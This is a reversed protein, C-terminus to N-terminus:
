AVSVTPSTREGSARVTRSLPHTVFGAGTRRWGAAAFAPTLESDLLNVDRVAEIRVPRGRWTALRSLEELVEAVLVESATADPDALILRRGYASVLVLPEGGRSVVASGPTRARWTGGAQPQRPLDFVTGWANAPDSGLVLRPTAAPAHDRLDDITAARAFQMGSLGLVFRGQVLEGRVTRLRLEHLVARWPVDHREARFTERCVIGWRALLMDVAVGVPLRAPTEPHRIQWRGPLGGRGSTQGPGGTLAFAARDHALSGRRRRLWERLAAFTDATVLGAWFLRMLAADIEAPDTAPVAAHDALDASFWGGGSGLVSMIADCVAERPPPSATDRARAQGRRAVVVLGRGSGSWSWDGGACVGDLSAPTYDEARAELLGNEWDGLPLPLNGLSDLVRPLADNGATTRGPAGLHHHLLFSAYHAASVPAIAARARALSVRHMRQLVDPPCWERATGMPLYHGSVLRGTKEQVRLLSVVSEVEMGYRAALDSAALPGAWDLRRLLLNERSRDADAAAVWRALEAHRVIRGEAALRAVRSATEEPPCSFRQAIEHDSMDGLDSLLALVSVDDLPRSPLRPSPLSGLEARVEDVVDADLLSRLDEVRLVEGLLERDLALYAARCEGRPADGAEAFAKLFVFDLAAAFPSARRTPVVPRAIEGAEIGRLVSRLGEVDWMEQYCERVAEQVVPFGEKRRVVSLLDAARQRQLWLPTRRAPSGKPLLLARQASERFRWAYMPADALEGILLEHVSGADVADLFSLDPDGEFEPLRIIVGDATWTVQPDLNGFRDRIPPKVAHAWAGNVAYGFLSHIVIRLDGIEDHYWEVPVVRDSPVHGLAAQQAAVLEILAHTAEDDLACHDDLLHRLGDLDDLGDAIRRALGAVRRGLHTGRGRKEGNWFALMAPEGPAPVVFVNSHDVRTPRWTSAGLVFPWRDRQMDGVFEEDLSGLRLGEVEDTGTGPDLRVTYEGRDPITGGNTTALLRAGRRAHVTGTARDVVIRPQLERYREDAYGGELMRLVNELQADSLTRFPLSRRVIRAIDCIHLDDVAAMSVIHQALVDLCLDPITVPEIDGELVAAAVGACELLDVPHRALLRGRSTETIGHGSRGVRQVAATAEQPSAYQVVCDLAGMDIGLELSSTAVLGRLRGEKLGVELDRRVEHAVSGHHAHVLEEGALENVCQVMQEVNGRSPAFVLTATHNRVIEVIRRCAETFAPGANPTAPRGPTVPIDAGRGGVYGVRLDLPRQGPCDVIAVDRATGSEDFGGLLNAVASVPRATASLGIRGFGARGNGATIEELRELSLALHTGRKTRAVAHIEDVVVWEVTRLVERARPATLMLYLSEPTTILIEPPNRLISSRTSSSTDGTRVGIRIHALDEGAAAAVRRVGELPERLNREIDYNLAKLPSVYLLRVGRGPTDREQTLLRDISWLFSALTKGSGTPALLLTHSGGSIADWGRAQIETPSGFRGRFWERVHVGFRGLVEGTGQTHM